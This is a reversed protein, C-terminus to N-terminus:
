QGSPHAERLVAAADEPLIPNVYAATGWEFGAVQTLRPLVEIHQNGM